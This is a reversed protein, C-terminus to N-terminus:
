LCTMGPGSCSLSACECSGVCPAGSSKGTTACIGGGCCSTTCQCSRVCTNGLAINGMLVCTGPQSATVFNCCQSACNSSNALGGVVCSCGLPICACGSTASGGCTSQALVATPAIISSIIPLAVLSALGVQKIVERRTKGGYSITIDLGNELLNEKKLQGLALWVLEESFAINLKQTAIKAIDSITKDGTSLQWVLAATENLSLAKNTKLDYILLEDDLEQIVIDNKRVLSTTESM